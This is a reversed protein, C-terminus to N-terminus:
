QSVRWRVNFLWMILGGIFVNFLVAWAIHMLFLGFGGPRNRVNDANQAYSAQKDTIIPLSIAASFPSTLNAYYVLEAVRRATKARQVLEENRRSSDTPESGDRITAAEAQQAVVQQAGLERNTVIFDVFYKVAPPLVFMGMIVLYAVMMSVSTKRFIVSFLLAVSSTTVCSLVVIILYALMTPINRWYDPVFACALALPWVLFMTLVTSVRLGAVLKGWLIQWPSITTTLMLELTDREREGTVRDASFVPGILMNFLLVYCIYWPAKLPAIYFFWAMLPIALFMSVQIVIRLMLTGQSFLESRMEKDYVPNTGDPMLGDRKAPAFLKDPFQDSQIVMGVAQEMEQQIDVVGKGESGVDPPFMLRRATWAFTVFIILASIAPLITVSAFLRYQGWSALASWLLAGTLAMPLIILYSVTLAAVTRQFYSSCAMSIMGFCVVSAVLAFYAALVEYLSVGGLPVCLMVIPLSCVILIGLHCLSALLKGVIIASPGLPSALLSEYTKREKEGTITGAAFSPAMLSALLYQGLFFFDVREKAVASTTMDVKLELESPWTVWVVGGLLALYAFLLLFARHMRLNVLLERQLVPNDFLYM